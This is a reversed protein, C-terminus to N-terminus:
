QACKENMKRTCLIPPFAVDLDIKKSKGYIKLAPKLALSPAAIVGISAGFLYVGIRRKRSM